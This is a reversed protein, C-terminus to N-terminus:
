YLNAVWNEVEGQFCDNQDPALRSDDPCLCEFQDTDVDVECKHACGCEALVIEVYGDRDTNLSYGIYTVNLNAPPAEGYYSYGGGGPIAVAIGTGNWLVSGGTYGGGGGGGGCGGGGGGFGGEIGATPVSLVTACGEGGMAFDPGSQSLLQGDIITPLATPAQMWGGGAGANIVASIDRFGMVGPTQYGLSPDYTSQKANLFERYKEDASVQFPGSVRLLDWIINYTLNAPGGGGGGSIVLPLNTTKNNRVSIPWVMSAGGGGGGGVNEYIVESESTSYNATVSEFWSNFCAAAQRDNRPPPGNCVSLIDNNRACPSQGQQGVLVLLDYDPTLQAQIEQVM